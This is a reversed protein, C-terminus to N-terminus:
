LQQFAVKADATLKEGSKVSTCNEATVYEDYCSPWGDYTVKFSLSWNIGYIKIDHALWM